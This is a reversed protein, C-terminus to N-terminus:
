QTVHTEVPTDAREPAKGDAWKAIQAKTEVSPILAMAENIKSVFQKSNGPWYYSALDRTLTLSAQLQEMPTFTVITTM